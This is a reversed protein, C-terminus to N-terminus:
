GQRGRLARALAEIKRSRYGDVIEGMLVHDLESLAGEEIRLNDRLYERIESVVPSLGKEFFVKDALAKEPVAMNFSAMNDGFPVEYLGIGGPYANAPIFRYIFVGEPTQFRKVRSSPSNRVAISTIQKPTEPILNHYALVWELSIYSPWYIRNALVERPFPGRRFQPAIAYLGRRVRIIYGGRQLDRLKSNPDGFGRLVQMAESTDFIVPLQVLLSANSRRM